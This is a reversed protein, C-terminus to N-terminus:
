NSQFQSYLAMNLWDHELYMVEPESVLMLTDEWTVLFNPCTADRWRASNPIRDRAPYWKIYFGRSVLFWRHGLDEPFFIQLFEPGM